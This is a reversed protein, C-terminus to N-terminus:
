ENPQAPRNGFTRIEEIASKLRGEPGGEAYEWGEWRNPQGTGRFPAIARLFPQVGRDKMESILEGARREQEATRDTTAYVGREERRLADRFENAASIWASFREALEPAKDRLVEVIEGRVAEYEARAEVAERGMEALDELKQERRRVAKVESLRGRLTEVEASLNNIAESLTDAQVQLRQAEDLAEDQAEESDANQLAARADELEAEVAERREELKERRAKVAEIESEIANPDPTDTTAVTPM